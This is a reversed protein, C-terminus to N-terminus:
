LCGPLQDQLHDAILVLPIEPRSAIVESSAQSAGSQVYPPVGHKSQVVQAEYQLASNLTDRQTPHYLLFITGQITCYRIYGYHVTFTHADSACTNRSYIGHHM